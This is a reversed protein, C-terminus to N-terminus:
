ESSKQAVAQCHTTTTTTTTATTQPLRTSAALERWGAVPANLASRVVPWLSYFPTSFSYFGEGLGGGLPHGGQTKLSRQFEMDYISTLLTRSTNILSAQYHQGM